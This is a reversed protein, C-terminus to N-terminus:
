LFAAERRQLLVAMASISKLLSRPMLRRAIALDGVRQANVAVLWPRGAESTANM